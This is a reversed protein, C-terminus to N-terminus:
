GSRARLYRCSQASLVMGVPAMRLRRSGTRLDARGQSALVMRMPPVRKRRSSTRLDRSLEPTLVVLSMLTSMLVTEGLMVSHRLPVDALRGMVTCRMAQPLLPMYCVRVKVVLVPPLVVRQRATRMVHLPLPNMVGNVVTRVMRYMAPNVMLNM